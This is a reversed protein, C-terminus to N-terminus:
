AIVQTLPSGPWHHMHSDRPNISNSVERIPFIYGYPSFPYQQLVRPIGEGGYSITPLESGEPQTPALSPNVMNQLIGLLGAQSRGLVARAWEQCSVSLFPGRRGLAELPCLDNYLCVNENM